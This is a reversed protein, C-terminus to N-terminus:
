SLMGVIPFGVKYYFNDLRTYASSFHVFNSYENYDVSINIDKRNLLNKVQNQSSTIDTGILTDYSFVQGSEGTEQTATISYNPGKIFQIDNPEFIFPPFTVSYAEPHSIEEVVWM